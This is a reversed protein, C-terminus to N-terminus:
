PDGSRGSRSAESGTMKPDQNPLSLPSREAAPPIKAISPESGIGNCPASGSTRKQSTTSSTATTAGADRRPESMPGAPPGTSPAPSARHRSSPRSALNRMRHALCRQRASRPFCTEVTKIVGAAGDSVVLLPDGLGRRRIDQFLASVM